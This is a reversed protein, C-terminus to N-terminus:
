AARAGATLQKSAANVVNTAIRVIRAQVQEEGIYFIFTDGGGNLMSSLGSQDAIEQARRPNTLPIIAERRHGEGMLAMTPSDVVGGEALPMLGSSTIKGKPTIRDIDIGNLNRMIWKIVAVVRELQNLLFTAFNAAGLLFIGLLIALDVMAKLARKGDPSKFFETLREIAATVLQFFTRGGEETEGFMVRFLEILAKVMNWIDTITLFAKELFKEFSGNKISEDIWAAFRELFRGLAEIMRIFFPMAAVAMNMLATLIVVMPGKLTEFLTKAGQFMSSTFMAFGPTAGISLIAAAFEGAAKAVATFGALLPGRVAAIVTTLVGGLPAFFSQQAAQRLQTFFPLAKQIETVMGRAAPTLKKMAEALKEPDKAFVADLAEGFGQFAAVLPFIAALLVGGGTALLPLLGILNSLAGAVAVLASLLIPVLIAALGILIVAVPLSVTSMNLMSGVLHQMGKATSNVSDGLANMSGKLAGGALNSAAGFLKSMTRSFRDKDVNTEVDVKVKTRGGRSLSESVKRSISGSNRDIGDSLSDAFVDGLEPSEDKLVKEVSRVVATVQPGVQRAFPRTDAHVEIFARGLAM